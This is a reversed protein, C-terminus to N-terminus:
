WPTYTRAICDIKGQEIIKTAHPMSSWGGIIVNTECNEEIM